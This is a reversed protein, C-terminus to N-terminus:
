KELQYKLIVCRTQLIAVNACFAFIHILIYCVGTIHSKELFVSRDGGFLLTILSKLLWKCDFAYKFVALITRRRKAM